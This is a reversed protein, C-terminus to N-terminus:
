EKTAAKLAQNREDMIRNQTDTWVSTLDHFLRQHDHLNIEIQERIHPPINSSRMTHFFQLLQHTSTLTKTISTTIIRKEREIQTNSKSM